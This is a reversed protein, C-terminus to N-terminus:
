REKGDTVFDHIEASPRSGSVDQLQGGQWVRSPRRLSEAESDARGDLLVLDARWGPVIRGVTDGLGMAVAPVMTARHIAEHTDLGLEDITRALLAPFRAINPGFEDSTFFIPAGDRRLAHHLEWRNRPSSEDWDQADGDGKALPRITAAINLDITTGQRLMRHAIDPRYDITGPDAGLWNCHAITDVGAAVSNAIGETANCHAIVRLGLRHADEVAPELEATSYQTRRPNTQPDMSGGTVMIKIADVGAAALERIRRRLEDASDAIVGIFDGHGGTTTIAPGCAVVRPGVVIGRRIADRLHLTDFGACGCDQVTTIGAQLADRASRAMYFPRSEPSGGGDWLEIGDYGWGMHVHADILGPILTTGRPETDDIPIGSREALDRIRDAADVTTIRGEEVIVGGAILPESGTGDVLTTATIAFHAATNM